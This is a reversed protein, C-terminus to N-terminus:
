ILREIFLLNMKIEFLKSKNIFLYYKKCIQFDELNNKYLRFFECVRKFFLM